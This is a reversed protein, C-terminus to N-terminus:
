DTGALPPTFAKAGARFPHKDYLFLPAGVHMAPAEDIKLHPSDFGIHNLVTYKRKFQTLFRAMRCYPPSKTGQELLFRSTKFQ